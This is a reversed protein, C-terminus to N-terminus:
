AATATAVAPQPRHASSAQAGMEHGQHEQHGEGRMVGTPRPHVWTAEVWAGWAEAGCTRRCTLHHRGGSAGVVWAVWAVWAEVGTCQTTTSTHHHPVVFDAASSPLHPHAAALHRAFAEATAKSFPPPPPHTTNSQTYNSQTYFADCLSVSIHVFVCAFVRVCVCVREREREGEVRERGSATSVMVTLRGQSSLFSFFFCFVCRLRLCSPRTPRTTLCCCMLQCFWAMGVLLVVVDEGEGKSKRTRHVFAFELWAARCRVTATSLRRPQM